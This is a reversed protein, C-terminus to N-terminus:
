YRIDLLGQIDDIIIDSGTITVFGEDKLDSLSRIITEKATGSMFALDERQIPIVAKGDIEYMRFLDILASALRVRVPSYAQMLLKEDTRVLEMAMKGLFYFTMAKDNYIHQLFEDQKVPIVTLDELARLTETYTSGAIASAVGIIDPHQYLRTIVEKSYEDAKTAVARGSSIMYVYRCPQGETYLIDKKHILRPEGDKFSQPLLSIVQDGTLTNMLPTGSDQLSSSKKKQLRIAITDLLEVDDFPKTIYDDAGLTMGKRLDSMETKATLFIFPISSTLPNKSLIRLVGYGDLDPMMVDCLILDPLLDTASAVGIKGNVATIAEYGSLVLIERLNERVDKNDEIILIKHKM